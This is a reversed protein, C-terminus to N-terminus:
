ASSRLSERSRLACVLGFALAIDDLQDSRDVAAVEVASFALGPGAGRRRQPSRLDALSLELDAQLQRNVDFIMRLQVRMFTPWDRQQDADLWVSSSMTV